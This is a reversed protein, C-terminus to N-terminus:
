DRSKVKFYKIIRWLLVDPKDAPLIAIFKKCTTCRLYDYLYDDDFSNAPRDKVIEFKDSNPTTCYPFLTGSINPNHAM